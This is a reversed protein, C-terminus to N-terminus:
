LFRGAIRSLLKRIDKPGRTLVRYVITKDIHIYDHGIVNRFGIMKRFVTLERKELVGNKFLLESAEYATQPYGWEEDVAIHQTMDILHNVIQFLNYEVVDQVVPDAMLEAESLKTYPAIRELHKEVQEFRQLLITKDVM